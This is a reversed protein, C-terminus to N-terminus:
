ATERCVFVPALDLLIQLQPDDRHGGADPEQRGATVRGNLRVDADAGTEQIPAVALRSLEDVEAVVRRDDEPLTVVGLPVSSAGTTM